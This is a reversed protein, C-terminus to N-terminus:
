AATRLDALADTLRQGPCRSTARFDKHGVLPLERDLLACVQARIRSLANIVPVPVRDQCRPDQVDFCGLVVVGLTELNHGYCHAGVSLGLVGSVEGQRGELIRGDLDVLYHYGIDDWGRGECDQHLRQIELAARRGEAASWAAFRPAHHVVIAELKRLPAPVGRFAAAHWDARPTALLQRSIAPRM